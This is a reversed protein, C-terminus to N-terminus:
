NPCNPSTSTTCFDKLDLGVAKLYSAAITQYAEESLTRNRAFVLAGQYFWQLTHGCYYLLTYSGDSAQDILWWTEFHELGVDHYVFSINTGAPASNPVTILFQQTVPLLSGNVLYVEYKPIYNWSTANIPQFYLQQCPYCDYVPHIGKVVWWDGQIDKMSLQKLPHIDMPKLCTNPIPPFGICENDTLCTMFAEFAEGDYTFSCKATCNQVHFKEQTSDRDWNSFCGQSCAIASRCGGDLLCGASQLSCHEVVCPIKITPEVSDSSFLKADYPKALATKALFLLFAVCTVTFKQM